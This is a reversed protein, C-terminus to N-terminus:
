FIVVFGISLIVCIIQITTYFKLSKYRVLKGIIFPSVSFILLILKNLLGPYIICLFLGFLTYFLFLGGILAIVPSLKNNNKFKSDFVARVTLLLALMMAIVCFIIKVSTLYM